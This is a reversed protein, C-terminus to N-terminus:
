YLAEIAYGEDDRYLVMIRKPNSLFTFDILERAFKKSQWTEILRNASWKVGVIQDTGATKSLIKTLIGDNREKYILFCQDNFDPRLEFRRPAYLTESTKKDAFGGVYEDKELKVPYPSEKFEGYNRPGSAEVREEPAFYGHLDNGSELIIIRQSDNPLLNFQYISYIGKAPSYHGNIIPKNSQKDWSILKVPGAYQTYDGKKQALAIKQGTRDFIVNLYYPWNRVIPTLEGHNFGLIESCLESDEKDLIMAPKALTVFLEDKGNHDIDTAQLSLPFNKKNKFTYNLKQSLGDGNFGYVSVGNENLIALDTAGDGELDFSVMKFSAKNLRYFDNTDEFVSNQSRELTSVTTKQTGAIALGSPAPLPVEPPTSLSSAKSKPTSQAIKIPLPNTQIDHGTPFLTTIELNSKEAKYFLLKGEKGRILRCVLHGADYEFRLLLDKGSIGGPLVDNQIEKIQFDANLLEKILNQYPPLAHKSKINSYVHVIPAPPTLVWDDPEVGRTISQEVSAMITESFLAEVKLWGIQKQLHPSIGKKHDCVWLGQGVSINNIDNIKKFLIKGHAVEQVKGAVQFPLGYEGKLWSVVVTFASEQCFSPMVNSIVFFISLLFLQFTRRINM